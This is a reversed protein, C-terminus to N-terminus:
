PTDRISVFQWYFSLNGDVILAPSDDDYWKIMLGQSYRLSCMAPSVWMLCLTFQETETPWVCVRQVDWEWVVFIQLCSVNSETSGSRITDDEFLSPSLDLPVSPSFPRSLILNFFLSYNVLTEKDSPTRPAPATYTPIPQTARLCFHEGNM